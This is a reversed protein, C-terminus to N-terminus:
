LFISKVLLDALNEGYFAMIKEILQWQEALADAFGQWCTPL